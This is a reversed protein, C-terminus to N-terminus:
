LLNRQQAIILPLREKAQIPPSFANKVRRCSLLGRPLRNTEGAGQRPSGLGPLAYVMDQSKLALVLQPGLETYGNLQRQHIAGAIGGFPLILGLM